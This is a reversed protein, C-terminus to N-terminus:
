RSIELGLINKCLQFGAFIFFGTLFVTVLMVAIEDNQVGGFPVKIGLTQLLQRAM